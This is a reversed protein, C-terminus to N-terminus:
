PGPAVGRIGFVFRHFADADDLGSRFDVWTLRSLFRLLHRTLAEVVPKDAGNHSPFVNYKIM